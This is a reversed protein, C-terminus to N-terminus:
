PTWGATARSGVAIGPDERQPFTERPGHGNNGNNCAALTAALAAMIMFRGQM